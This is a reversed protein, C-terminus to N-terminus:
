CYREKYRNPELASLGEPDANKFNVKIFRELQKWIDWRQQFDIIGMFYADPGIIRHVELKRTMAMSTNYSSNMDIDVYDSKKESLMVTESSERIISNQHISSMSMSGTAMTPTMPPTNGQPQGTSSRNNEDSGVSGASGRGINIAPVSNVASIAASSATNNSNASAVLNDSSMMSARRLLQPMTRTSMSRLSRQSEDGNAIAATLTNVNVFMSGSSVGSVEYETNHVGVLLSYDMIGLSALFEADQRLQSQVELSESETLRIKHKIDNDKMIVNPFHEGVTVPCKDLLAEMENAAEIDDVPQDTSPTSINNTRRSSFFRLETMFNTSNNGSTTVKREERYSVLVLLNSLEHTSVTLTISFYTHAILAACVYHQACQPLTCAGM